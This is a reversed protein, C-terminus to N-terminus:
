VDLFQLKRSNAETLWHNITEYTNAFDMLTKGTRENCQPIIHDRLIAVEKDVANKSPFLRDSFFYNAQDGHQPPEDFHAFTSGSKDVGVLQQMQSVYTPSITTKAAHVPILTADAILEPHHNAQNRAFDEHVHHAIDASTTATTKM